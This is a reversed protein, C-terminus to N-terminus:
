YKGDHQELISIRNLSSLFNFRNVANRVNRESENWIINWTILLSALGNSHKFRLKNKSFEEIGSREPTFKNAGNEWNANRIDLEM